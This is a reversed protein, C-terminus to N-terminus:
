QDLRHVWHHPIQAESSRGARPVGWLNGGAFTQWPTVIREHAVDTGLCARRKQAAAVHGKSSFSNYVINSPFPMIQSTPVPLLNKGDSLTTEPLFSAQPLAQGTEAPNEPKLNQISAEAVSYSPGPAQAPAQM